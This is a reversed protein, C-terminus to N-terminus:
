NDKVFRVSYRSEPNNTPFGKFFSYTYIHKGDNLVRNSIMFPTYSSSWFGTEDGEQVFYKFTINYTGTSLASFGSNNNPLLKNGSNIWSEKAMLYIAAFENDSNGAVNGYEFSGDYNRMLDIFDSESPLRWGAPLTIALAESRSYHKGYNAGNANPNIMGGDGNYNVSTWTRKGIVVTSYSVGNLKVSGKISGDISSIVKKEEENEPNEKKCGTVIFFLLLLSICAEKM